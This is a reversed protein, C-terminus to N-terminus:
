YKIATAGDVIAGGIFAAGLFQSATAGADYYEVTDLVSRLNKYYNVMEIVRHHKDPQVKDFTSNILLRFHYPKGGYEWWESVLTDPYIASIATKVAATTGLRRHVYWSEKLTNRKEELTYSEDCWDVKFDHILIDILEEPLEDIQSYISVRQIDERRKDLVNAISESLAVLKASKQLAMPFSALMSEKSLQHSNM